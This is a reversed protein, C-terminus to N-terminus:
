QATPEEIVIDMDLVGGATNQQPLTLVLYVGGAPEQDPGISLLSRITKTNDLSTNKNTLVDLFTTVATALNVGSWLENGGSAKVVAFTGDAKKSYFGLNAGTVSTMAPMRQSYIRAIRSDLSVPGALIYQDGVVGTTPVTEKFNVTRMQKGVTFGPNRPFAVGGTGYYITM